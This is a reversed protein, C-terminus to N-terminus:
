PREQREKNLFSFMVDLMGQLQVQEVDQHVPLNLIRNSIEHENSFSGDIPSILEHYLSVVGYGRENMSFYLGDRVERSPLFVPFSQPVFAGLVPFMIRIGKDKKEALAQVLFAYNQRRREMIFPYDYRFLDYESAERTATLPERSLVLGGDDIPFMKHLSFIAFDFDIQPDKYFTYFAHAFDEIIVMHNERAWQKYIGLNKDKFGFYHILLLIQGKNKSIKEKLDAKDINLSSDMRYFLYEKGTQTIPDFVGSGERSSHGIYAPILIKRGKMSPFELVQRLGERAASFYHWHFVGNDREVQKKEIIM